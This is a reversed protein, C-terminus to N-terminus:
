FVLVSLIKFYCNRITCYKKFVLIYYCYVSSPTTGRVLLGSFVTRRRCPEASSSTSTMVAADATESRCQQAFPITITPPPPPAAAATACRVDSDIAVVDAAAAAAAAVVVVVVVVVVAIAAAAAAAIIIVVFVVGDYRSRRNTRDDCVATDNREVITRSHRRSSFRSNIRGEGFFFVVFFSTNM